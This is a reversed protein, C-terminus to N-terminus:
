QRNFLILKKLIVIATDITIVMDKPMDITDVCKRLVAFDAGPHSLFWRESLDLEMDYPADQMELQFRKAVQCYESLREEKALKNIERKAVRKVSGILLERVKSLKQKDRIMSCVAWVDKVSRNDKANKLLKIEVESM